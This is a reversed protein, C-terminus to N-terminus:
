RREWDQDWLGPEFTSSSAVHHSMHWANGEYQLTDLYKQDFPYEHGTSLIRYHGAGRSRIVAVNGVITIQEQEFSDLVLVINSMFDRAWERIQVRGILPARNPLFMTADSLFLAAYSDPDGSEAAEALDNFFLELQQERTQGFACMPVIM